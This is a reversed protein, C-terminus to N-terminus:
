ALKEIKLDQLEPPGALARQESILRMESEGESKRLIHFVSRVALELAGEATHGILLRGVFLAALLDGAGHPVQALRPTSVIWAEGNHLVLTGLRDAGQPISTALVTNKGLRRAAAVADAANHVSAGTLNSLEFANPAVIDALPLLMRAMAQAVGQKAYARGDDGFVPDLCYFAKENARKVRRVADAVVDAQDASGLYGSIVADCSSLWGNAELGGVLRTLLAAPMAEGEVNPYGAHSSLLVSPLAWVEHGLCQLAFRAAANGVHGYAVDSQISLVNM